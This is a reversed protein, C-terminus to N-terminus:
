PLPWSRPVTVVYTGAIRDHWSQREPDKAIWLFGLGLAAFSFIAALSRVVADGPGLPQGDTRIVRLNCIIGGLTTGKWTLAGVYYAGVVLVGHGVMLPLIALASVGGPDIMYMWSWAPHVAYFYLAIPAAVGAAHMLVLQFAPPAFPGDVRIRERACLAFALGVAIHAVVAIPM